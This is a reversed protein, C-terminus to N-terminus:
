FYKMYEILAAKDADSLVGNEKADPGYKTGFYHGRDVVFDQCKSVDILGPAAYKMFYNLAATGTLKQKRIEITATVLKFISRNLRALNVPDASLNINAILNVPVGAPIPGVFIDNGIEAPDSTATWMSTSAVKRKAEDKAAVKGAKAKDGGRFDAYEFGKKLFTKKAIPDAAESKKILDFLFGPLYGQPIKLYSNETTVDITGPLQAGSNTKYYVARTSHGAVYPAAPNSRTEPNLLKSISDNFSLMRGDLNGRWDFKGLANNQLFPATSWVSILSPPRLYGRGGGPVTVSMSTLMSGSDVPYNVTFKGISPLEKYSTSSFNDWIDNKIANTAIPSCLQSDTLTVPIRLDTSLFNDKLFDKDQVMKAMEDKFTSTKSYQWYADWCKTYNAGRCADPAKPDNFFTYAQDPLKSSHCRACNEAFVKKGLALQQDAPDKLYQKGGEANELKDPRGSALFFLALNPTQQVNAQWYISNEQATKIPFPSLFAGGILPIFHKVWEEGFLGINVYVRNLAGLAGVSDSGDKLVRPSIVIQGSSNANATKRLPSDKSIFDAGLNSFQMNRTEDGTLQESSNFKIGAAIRAPLDYVANMTRPNNIQDSSILSTDLSGPRSTHLLQYVFNDQGKGKQWNWTFIRDVWFYQAGPNSSLDAWKPNNFDAPLHSPNPGVHCLACAMGVRYPRITKPNNYYTPDTYFREPDWKDAAAQDFEPNPFLRFGIVGTAYGYFSGEDFHIKKGKYVLDKGRSGIKVGPYLSKDEFPDPKCDASVIREDLRLGFRDDRPGSAEKFCPENVLGLTEWRNHRAAPLASHSSLTKLFDLGGFTSRGLNTWFADNGFTWVIWNNRGRAMKKVAEDASIGPAYPSLTKQLEAPKMTFGNDMEKFFDVDSGNMLAQKQAKSLQGADEAIKAEDKEATAADVIGGIVTSSPFLSHLTATPILNDPVLNFPDLKNILSQSSAPQSFNLLAFGLLALGVRTRNTM